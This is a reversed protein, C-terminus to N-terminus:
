KCPNMIIIFSLGNPDLPANGEEGRKRRGKKGPSPHSTAHRISPLPSLVLESCGLKELRARYRSVQGRVTILPIPYFAFRTRHQGTRDSKKAPNHSNPSLLCSTAGSRVAQHISNRFPSHRKIPRKHKTSRKVATGRQVSSSTRPFQFLISNGKGKKRGRRKKIRQFNSFNSSDM